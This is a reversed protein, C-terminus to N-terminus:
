LTGTGGRAMQNMQTMAEEARGSSPVVRCSAHRAPATVYPLVAQRAPVQRTAGPAHQVDVGGDVGAFPAAPFTRAPMTSRGPQRAMARLFLHEGVSRAM